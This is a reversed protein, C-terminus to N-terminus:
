SVSRAETKQQASSILSRFDQSASRSPSTDRQWVESTQVRRWNNSISLCVESTPCDFEVFEYYVLRRFVSPLRTAVLRALFDTTGGPAAPTIMRIPHNPYIDAAIAEAALAVSIGLVLMAVFEHSRKM